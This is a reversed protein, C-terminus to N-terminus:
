ELTAGSRHPAIHGHQPTLKRVRTIIPELWRWASVGVRRKWRFRRWAPWSEIDPSIGAALALFADCTRQDGNEFATTGSWFAAEAITRNMLREFDAVQPWPPAYERFHTDFARKQEELRRLPSYELSMNTAHLRRFAQDADIEAVAAHVAMRLWIETDGSHPLEARYGGIERHLATRVIATPAQIPTHGLRCSVELFELYTMIHRGYCMGGTAPHTPPTHRFTIDCGYTLGVEPHADMLRTARMLSGPTLLDDASLIMCYDGTVDNLAENYTAIHGRNVDHRRYEVRPDQAALRRGVEPTRDTSADDMILVRADVERQSLVSAVCAELLDGYNYCPVIVDIRAM